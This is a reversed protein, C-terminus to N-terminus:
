DPLEKLMQVFDPQPHCDWKEDEPRYSCHTWVGPVGSLAKSNVEWMEPHYTLPIGYEERWYLALLRCSEIEEPTYREYYFYGRFPVEYKHVKGDPVTISPYDKPHFKKGDGLVLPGFSCIEVGISKMNLLKSSSSANYSRLHNATVGLHYGWKSSKFAQYITGGDEIGICTAVRSKNKAWYNFMGRANDWGSSHHFVIQSKEVAENYYLDNQFDVSQIRDFLKQRLSGEM